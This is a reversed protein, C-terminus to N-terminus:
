VERHSLSDRCARALARKQAMQPRTNVGSSEAVVSWM